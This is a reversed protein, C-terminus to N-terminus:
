VAVEYVYQVNKNVREEKKAKRRKLTKDEALNRTAWAVSTIDQGLIEALETNSLAKGKRRAFAKIVEAAIGRRATQPPPSIRDMVKKTRRAPQKVELAPVKGRTTGNKALPKLQGTRVYFDGSIQWAQSFKQIKTLTKGAESDKGFGTIASDLQDVRTMITVNALVTGECFLAITTDFAQQRNQKNM